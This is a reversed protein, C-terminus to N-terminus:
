KCTTCPAPGESFVHNILFVADGVNTGGDCNPDGQNALIPAPGDQFIHTILYVADGINIKEDNNADGCVGDCVDGIGDLDSDDQDPNYWPQCNDCADGWGDDDRDEQGANEDAICNDCGDPIGDADTDLNDDFGDCVDCPNGVGDSDTDDQDPNALGPCNDYGDYVQDNDDDGHPSHVYAFLKDDVISDVRIVIGTPGSYGDSSPYTDPGLQDQGDVESSFTAGLRTEYPYWWQASDTVRGEPNYTRDRAPDYGADVVAATYHDYKPWGYNVRWEEPPIASDDIHSVLLGCDLTDAGFALHPFFYVSYDHDVKDYQAPSYPNRYELLFYEGIQPDIPVLYLSSDKHTEFEYIVLDEFTGVLPIAEIWGLERKTWGCLHAQTAKDISFLGYGGYGMICWDMFPHDNSDSPTIYTSTNLKADYDYLDPAGMNHTIEHCFVNIKNLSDVGLFNGPYTPDRMPYEEPSTSWHNVLLGDFPGVGYGAAYSIAFSWIDQPSQTDEQGTGSRLFVVADVFGDYNGDFQSFDVFPNVAYLAEEFEWYYMDPDYEGLNQWDTVQGTVTIQGYSVEDFYDAVSGGPYIGQSFFFSDLTQRSYTRSRYNWEIPIVLLRFNDGDFRYQIAQILEQKTLSQGVGKGFARIIQDDPLDYVIAKSIDGAAASGFGIIWLVLTLIVNHKIM